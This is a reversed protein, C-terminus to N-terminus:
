VPHLLINKFKFKFKFKILDRYQQARTNIIAARYIKTVAAKDGNQSSSDAALVSDWNFPPM